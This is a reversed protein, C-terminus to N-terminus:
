GGLRFPEPSELAFRCNLGHVRLARKRAPNMMRRQTQKVIEQQRMSRGDSDRDATGGSLKVGTVGFACRLRQVREGGSFNL